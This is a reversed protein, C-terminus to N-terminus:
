CSISHEVEKEAAPCDRARLPHAVDQLVTHTLSCEGIDGPEAAVRAEPCGKCNATCTVMGQSLTPSKCTSLLNNPMLASRTSAPRRALIRVLDLSPM